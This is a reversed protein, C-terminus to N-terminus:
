RKKSNRHKSKKVGYNKLLEVASPAPKIYVRDGFYSGFYHEKMSIM